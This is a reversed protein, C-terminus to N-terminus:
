SNGRRVAPPHVRKTFRTKCHNGFLLSIEGKPFNLTAQSSEKHEITDVKQSAEFSDQSKSLNNPNNGSIYGRLLYM